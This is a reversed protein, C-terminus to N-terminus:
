RVPKDPNAPAAPPAPEGEAPGRGRVWERAEAMVATEDRELAPYNVAEYRRGAYKRRLLASAAHLRVERSEDDLLGALIPIARPDEVRGVAVCAESRYREIALPERLRDLRTHIRHRDWWARWWEARATRVDDDPVGRQGPQVRPYWPADLDRGGYGAVVQLVEAVAARRAEVVSDDALAAILEGVLEPRREALARLRREIQLKLDEGPFRLLHPLLEADGEAPLDEIIAGCLRSEPHEALHLVLTRRMSEPLAWGAAPIRDRYADLLALCLAKRRTWDGRLEDPPRPARGGSAEGVGRLVIRAAHGDAYWVDLSGGAPLPYRTVTDLGHGRGADTLETSKSGFVAEIGARDLLVPPLLRQELMAVEAQLAAIDAAADGQVGEQADEARVARGFLLAVGLSMCVLTPRCRTM